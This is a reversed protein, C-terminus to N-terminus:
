PKPNHGDTPYLYPTPNMAKDILAEAEPTGPLPLPYPWGNRQCYEKMTLFGSPKDSM